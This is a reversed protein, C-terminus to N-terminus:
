TTSINLKLYLAHKQFHGEVLSSSSIVSTNYTFSPIVEEPPVERRGCAWTRTKAVSRYLHRIEVLLLDESYGDIDRSDEKTVEKPITGRKKCRFPFITCHVSTYLLGETSTDCNWTERAEHGAGSSAYTHVVANCFSSITTLAVDPLPYCHVM